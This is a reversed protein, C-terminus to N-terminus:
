RSRMVQMPAQEEGTEPYKEDFAAQEAATVPPEEVMEEPLTAAKRYYYPAEPSRKRVLLGPMLFAKLVMKAQETRARAEIVVSTVRMSAKEVKQDVNRVQQPVNAAIKQAANADEPLTEGETVVNYAQNIAKVQPRVKKILQTKQHVWEAAFAWAAFWVVSLIIGLLMCLGVVIIAIQGLMEIVPPVVELLLM